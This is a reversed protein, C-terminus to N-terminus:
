NIKRKDRNGSQKLDNILYPVTKLEGFYIATLIGILNLSGILFFYNEIQYNLCEGFAFALLALCSNFGFLSCRYITKTLKLILINIYFNVGNLFFYTIFLVLGSGYNRHSKYYQEFMSFNTENLDIPYEKYAYCIFHYSVFFITVMILSFFLVVKFLSIRYLLHFLINSIYTLLALIFFNSNIIYNNKLDLYLDSIKFFPDDLLEKELFHVQCYIILLLILFLYKSRNFVRNSSICTLIIFPNLKIEEKKIVVEYDRRIDRKLCNTRQRIVNFLTCKTTKDKNFNYNKGYIKNIEELKFAEFEIRNKYNIPSDNDVKFLHYITNTLEIWECHEYKLRISENILFFSSILLILFCSNIIIITSIFDNIVVLIIFTIFPPLGTTVLTYRRFNELVKLESSSDELLLALSIKGLPRLSSSLFCLLIFFVIIKSEFYNSTKQQAYLISLIESFEQNSSSNYIQNYEKLYKNFKSDTIVILVNMFIFSLNVVFLIVIILKKRGFIDALIGYFLSGLCGFIVIIFASYIYFNEKQCISYFKYFINWKERKFLIIAINLKDISYKSVNISSFLKNKSIHYNHNVFFTKYNNNISNFEEIFNQHITQSNNHIDLSNNYLLITVKKDYDNCLQESSCSDFQNLNSFCYNRELKRNTLFLFIWHCISVLCTITLLIIKQIFFINNSKNTICAYINEIDDVIIKDLINKNNTKKIEKKKNKHSSDYKSNDLSFSDEDLEKKIKKNISKETILNIQKIENNSKKDITKKRLGTSLLLNKSYDNNINKSLNSRSGLNDSRESDNEKNSLKEM